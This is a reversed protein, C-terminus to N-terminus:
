DLDILRVTNDGRRLRMVWAHYSLTPPCRERIMSTEGCKEITALFGPACDPCVANSGFLYGGSTPDGRWEKNCLDCCVSDGIDYSRQM